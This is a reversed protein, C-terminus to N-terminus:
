ANRARQRRRALLGTAIVGLLAASTPEPVGTVTIIGTGSFYENSQNTALSSTSGYTGAPQNVGNLQLFGVTENVGAGLDAWSQDAVGATGGGKLSLTGFDFLANTAGAAVQLRAVSAPSSSNDVTVAGTGLSGNGSVALIGGAVLYGGTSTGAGTISLTGQDIDSAPATLMLRGPGSVGGSLTVSGVPSGAVQSGGTAQIHITANSQVVTPNTITVVLSRDNRIAGPFAAFPGTTAGAGNLNLPGPGFTYTGASILDLQGGNITFSSTATAAAALSMRLRGGTLATPGTYTKAGSGFTAMGDGVKTFGGTGTTTATLNLSGAASSAATASVAATVVGNLVLPVSITNNGTGAGSATITAGAAGNDLKLISGATGTNITNSFATSGLLDFSISGVTFGPAGSDVTVTRSATLSNPFIAADGAANPVVSTDWNTSTAWSGSGPVFTATNAARVPVTGLGVAVAACLRLVAAKQEARM